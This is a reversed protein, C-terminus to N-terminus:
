YSSQLCDNNCFHLFIVKGTFLVSFHESKIVDQPNSQPRLQLWVSYQNSCNYTSKLTFHWYGQKIIGQINRRESASIISFIVPFLDVNSAGLSLSFSLSLLQIIWCDIFWHFTPISAIEQMMATWQMNNCSLSPSQCRKM